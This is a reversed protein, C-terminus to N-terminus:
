RAMKSLHDRETARHASYSIRSRAAGTSALLGAGPGATRRVRRIDSWQKCTSRRRREWMGCRSYIRRLRLFNSQLLM